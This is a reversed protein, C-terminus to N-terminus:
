GSLRVTELLSLLFAKPFFTLFDQQYMEQKEEREKLNLRPRKSDKAKQFLCTFLLDLPQFPFIVTLYVRM